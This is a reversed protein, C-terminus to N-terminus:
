DGIFRLLYIHIGRQKIEEPQRLAITTDSLAKEGIGYFPSVRFCPFYAFLNDAGADGAGGLLTAAHPSVACLWLERPKDYAALNAMHRRM